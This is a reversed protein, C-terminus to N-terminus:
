GGFLGPSRRNLGQGGRLIGRVRVTGADLDVDCCRLAIAEGWRLSAADAGRAEHQYILAACQSDHGSWAM